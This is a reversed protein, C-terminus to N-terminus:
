RRMAEYPLNQLPLLADQIAAAAAHEPNGPTFVERTAILLAGGGAVPEVEIGPPRVIRRAYDPCLYTMWGARIPPIYGDDQRVERDEDDWPEARRWRDFYGWPGIGGWDPNWAAAIALLVPRMVAFDLLDVNTPEFAGFHLDVNNPFIPTRAETGVRVGLAFGHPSNQGNWASLSYGDNPFGRTFLRRKFIKTLEEVRPPMACFPHDAAARSYGQKYWHGFAPHAAALGALMAACREACDQADQLRTGWRCALYFHVGSM